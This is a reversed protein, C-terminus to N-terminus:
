LRNWLHPLASVLLAIGSATLLTLVLRRFAEESLGIYLRAGLLVPILMAPAVIAFMPLMERTVAGTALYAAMTFALTTLNFNQIISRQTNKEMGRLSCWLTPIAGTFGGLGGCIGGLLGSFGDALPGGDPARPLSRAFLMLPCWVILLAGLLAKFLNVDLMGLLFVGIPIGAIGGILFPLLLRLDFGRRVTLAAITQGTLGGFVALAAALKPEVTWAWFSIAVLSFAFGSLGQVFGAVVAGLAVFFVPGDMIVGVLPRLKTQLSARFFIRFNGQANMPIDPKALSRRLAL